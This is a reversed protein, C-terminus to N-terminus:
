KLERKNGKTNQRKGVSSASLQTRPPNELPPVHSVLVTPRQQQQEEGRSSQVDIFAVVIVCRDCVSTHEFDISRSTKKEEVLGCLMQVNGWLGPQFLKTGLFTNVLQGNVRKVCASMCVCLM